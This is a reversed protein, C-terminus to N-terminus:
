GGLGLAVARHIARARSPALVTVFPLM